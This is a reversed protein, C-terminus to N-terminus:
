PLHWMETIQNGALNLKKLFPLKQLEPVEQKLLNGNVDLETLNRFRGIDNLHTVKRNIFRFSILHSPNKVENLSRVPVTTNSSNSFSSNSDIAQGPGGRGKGNGKM